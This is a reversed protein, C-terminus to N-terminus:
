RTGVIASATSRADASGITFAPRIFGSSYSHVIGAPTSFYRRTDGRPAQLKLSRAATREISIRALQPHEIALSLAIADRHSATTRAPSVL